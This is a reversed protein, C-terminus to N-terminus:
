RDTLRGLSVLASRRSQPQSQENQRSQRDPIWMTCAEVTTPHCRFPKRRNQVHFTRCPLATHEAFIAERRYVM